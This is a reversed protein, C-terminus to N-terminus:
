RPWSRRGSLTLRGTAPCRPRKGSSMADGGRQAFLQTFDVGGAAQEILVSATGPVSGLANRSSLDRMLRRRLRAATPPAATGRSLGIQWFGADPM